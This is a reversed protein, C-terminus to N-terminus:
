RNRPDDSTANGLETTMEVMYDSQHQLSGKDLNQVTDAPSHYYALGDIFAFNLGSVQAGFFLLIRPSAAQGFHSLLWGNRSSTEFMM